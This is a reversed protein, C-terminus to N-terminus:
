RARAVIGDAELRADDLTRQAEAGLRDADTSANVVLDAAEAKATALIEDAEAHATAAIKEASERAEELIHRTQETVRDVAHRVAAQPSRSVELEAIVRNVRHVYDDVARRDYGRVSVPFSANRIEAPVRTRLETVSEGQESGSSPAAAREGRSPDQADAMRRTHGVSPQRDLQFTSRSRFLARYSWHRHAHPM